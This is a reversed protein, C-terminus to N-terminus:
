NNIEKNAIKRAFRFSMFCFYVFLAGTLLMMIKSIDAWYNDFLESNMATRIIDIGGLVIIVGTLAVIHMFLKKKNTFKISLYSFLIIVCGIYSPIYSTFSSSNSIFSIIIGWLFLFFGYYISLQEINKDLVTFEKQQNDM